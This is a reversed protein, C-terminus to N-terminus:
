LSLSGRAEHRNQCTTTRRVAPSISLDDRRTYSDYTATAWTAATRLRNSLVGPLKAILDHMGRFVALLWFRRSPVALEDRWGRGARPGTSCSKTADM